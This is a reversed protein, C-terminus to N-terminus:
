VFSAQYVQLVLDMNTPLEDKLTKKKCKKNSVPSILYLNIVYPYCTVIDLFYPCFITIGSKCCM